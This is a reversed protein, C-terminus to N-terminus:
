KRGTKKYLADYVSNLDIESMFRTLRVDAGVEDALEVALRKDKSGLEEKGGPRAPSTNGPITGKGIGMLARSYGTSGSMAQVLKDLDLGAKIGLNLCECAVIGNAYMALNNILKCAMGNGSAGLYINNKAIIEFVPRCREIAEDEGGIMLTLLAWEKGPTFDRAEASVPADVLSVGREKLKPSLSRCYAPSLSSCLVLISGPKLGERLGNSGFIVDDTEHIDRVVSIIIESEAAVERNSGAARAGLAAISDVAEKRLDYVTLPVSKEILKKVMLTGLNGLGIFGVKTSIM